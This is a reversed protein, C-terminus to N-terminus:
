KFPSGFPKHECVARMPEQKSGTTIGLIHQYHTQTNMLTPSGQRQTDTHANTLVINAQSLVQSHIPVQAM